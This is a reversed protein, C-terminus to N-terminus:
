PSRKELSGIRCIVVDGFGYIRAYRELSGIRCIVDDKQQCSEAQKELSGIRCIVLWNWSRTLGQM